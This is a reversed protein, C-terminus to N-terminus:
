VDNGRLKRNSLKWRLAGSVTWTRGCLLLDGHTSGTIADRGWRETKYSALKRLCAFTSRYPLGRSQFSDRLNQCPFSAM